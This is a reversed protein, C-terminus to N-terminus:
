QGGNNDLSKSIYMRLDKLSQIEGADYLERANFGISSKEEFLKVTDAWTNFEWDSDSWLQIEIPYYEPSYQFYLNIGRYGATFSGQHVVYNLVKFYSPFSIPYDVVHLRFSMVNRFTNVFDWGMFLGKSYLSRIERDGRFVFGDYGQSLPPIVKSGIEYRWNGIDTLIKGISIAPLSIESGASHIGIKHSYLALEDPVPILEAFNSTNVSIKKAHESIQQSVHPTSISGVSMSSLISLLSTNDEQLFEKLIEKDSYPVGKSEIETM